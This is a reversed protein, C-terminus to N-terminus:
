ITVSEEDLTAKKDSCVSPDQSKQRQSHKYLSEPKTGCHDFLALQVNVIYDSAEM